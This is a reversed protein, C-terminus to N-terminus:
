KKQENSLVQTSLLELQPKGYLWGQAMDCNNEILIQAQEENEVGEAIVKLGLGKAMAIISKVLALDSDGQTIGRTFSQDIKICDFPLNKLYGLSSYGTGFDDISIRVGLAKLSKLVNAAKEPDDILFSETVELELLTPDVRYQELATQVDNVLDTRALQVASINVAIYYQQCNEIINQKIKQVTEKIAWQGLEIILGTEEAIPIFKAPSIAGLKKHNWRALAEYGMIQGTVLDVQPQYHLQLDRNEIADRLLSELAVRESTAELMETSFLRCIGRGDKKAQYLATDAARKLEGLNRGDSPYFAIGVSLGIYATAEDLLYPQSIKSILNQTFNSIDRAREYDKFFIGFEDGGIRGIFVEYDQSAENLRKSCEILLLDGYDHGLSDNVAKFRDLDLYLLAGHDNELQADVLTEFHHKNYLGTLRDYHALTVLEQENKKLESIDSLVGIHFIDGGHELKSVSLLETFISGDKRKNEIEGKWKGVSRLSSWMQKYTSLPTRGSSLIRPNKGLVEIENFGTIQEFARNVKVICNDVDTLMIGEATNEYVEASLHLDREKHLADTIDYFSIVAGTLQGDIKLPSVKRYVHLGTGDGRLFYDRGELHQGSAIAKHVECEEHPYPSGDARSHHWIDHGKQGYPTDDLGLIDRAAQNIYTHYGNNDLEIIGDSVTNLITESKQAISNIVGLGKKVQGEKAKVETLDIHVGIMKTAEGGEYFVTAMSRIWVYNGSKHQLRHELYYDTEKNTICHTITDLSRKLDQPHLRSQWEQFGGEIEQPEYGLQSKWTDSFSVTDHKLDWDFVGVGSKQTTTQQLLEFRRIKKARHRKKMSEWLAEAVEEWTHIFHTDPKSFLRMTFIIQPKNKRIIPILLLYGNIVGKAKHVITTAKIEVHDILYSYEIEFGLCSDDLEIKPNFSYNLWISEAKSQYAIESLAKNLFYQDDDSEKLSLITSIASLGNQYTSDSSEGQVRRKKSIVFFLFASCLIGVFFSAEKYVPGDFM